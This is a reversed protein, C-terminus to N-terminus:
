VRTARSFRRWAAYGFVAFIGLWLVDIGFRIVSGSPDVLTALAAALMSAGVAQLLLQGKRSLKLRRTAVVLLAGVVASFAIAPGSAVRSRLQEDAYHWCNRETVVFTVLMLFSLGVLFRGSLRSPPAATLTIKRLRDALLVGENDKTGDAEVVDGERMWDALELRSKVRQANQGSRLKFDLITQDRDEVRLLSEVTGEFTEAM